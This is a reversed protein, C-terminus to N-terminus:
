KILSKCIELIYVNTKGSYNLEKGINLNAFFISFDCFTYFRSEVQWLMMDNWVLQQITITFVVKVKWHTWLLYPITSLKGAQHWPM